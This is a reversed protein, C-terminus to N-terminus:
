RGTISPTSNTVMDSGSHGIELEHLCAAILAADVSHVNHGCSPCGPHNGPSTRAPPDAGNGLFMAKDSDPLTDWIAKSGDLLSQWHASPMRSRPAHCTAYACLTDEGTDINYAGDISEIINTGKHEDFAHAYVACCPSAQGQYETPLFEQTNYNTTASVLLYVYQKYTLDESQTKHQDAQVVNQLMICKLAESFQEGTSVQKEYLRIKDQWNLISAHAGGKWSGDGMETSTIYSLLNSM